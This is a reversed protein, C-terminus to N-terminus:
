IEFEQGKAPVRTPLGLGSRVAKEFAASAAPEGHVIFVEPKTTFAALWDVLERQDAHASFGGITYVRARVAIEEGLIRVAPARNVIRRGLTGEAQYGLFIVSCEPRWLNHKLHHRIRGGDCMGSGALIVAGRVRNLAQSQKVTATFHLRLAKDERRFLSRAEEDYTEPHVLYVETAKQALPSDVYVNLRRPLRRERVLKGLMYVVDQTRGVAFAPIIVNGGRALTDRVAEALEDISEERGKHLRDGYTSEVVVYDATAVTQPDRIIPNDRKGVDGSFVIKRKGEPHPYMLEISGSGLIHGADVFRCEIGGGLQVTKGYPQRQILPFVAEADEITYLPPARHRRRGPTGQPHAM